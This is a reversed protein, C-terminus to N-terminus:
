GRVLSAPKGKKYQRALKRETKKDTRLRRTRRNNRKPVEEPVTYRDIVIQRAQAKTVPTGDVDRLQYPREQKLLM